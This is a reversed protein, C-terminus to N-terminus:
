SLESMRSLQNFVPRIMENDFVPCNLISMGKQLNPDSKLNPSAFM